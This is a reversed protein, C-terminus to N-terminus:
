ALSIVQNIESSKRVADLIRSLALASETTVPYPEEGRLAKAIAPYVVFSDGYRSGTTIRHGDALEESSVQMNLKTGYAKPDIDGHAEVYHIEISTEKVFITGRSGQIVWNPLKNVALSYECSLIVGSQTTLVAHFVDEVDGPNIVQRLQGYASVVPEGVVQVAQDIIHPGWNLLYGGGFRKETQWDARIAFSFERRRVMFVDGIIGSTILEKLRILDCGWRAPLWPLLQRGSEKAAAIMREAEGAHLAWPKTVVVNVGGQLCDCTMECHQDSRTVIVVLDLNESDLMKHYDSYVPCKFRTRAKEQAQPDLDCIAAVEFLDTLGELPNAHLTSGSRGYGLIAAKIKM